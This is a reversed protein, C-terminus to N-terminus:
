DSKKKGVPAEGPIFNEQGEKGQRKNATALKQKEQDHQIAEGDAEAPERGGVKYFNPNVNIKKSM